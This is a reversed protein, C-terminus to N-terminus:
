NVKKGVYTMKGKGVRLQNGEKTKWKRQVNRLKMKKKKILFMKIAKKKQLLWDYWAILGLKLFMLFFFM